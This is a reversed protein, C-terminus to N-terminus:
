QINIGIENHTKLIMMELTVLLQICSVFSTSYLSCCTGRLHLPISVSRPTLNFCELHLTEFNFTLHETSRRHQQNTLLNCRQILMLWQPSGTGEVTQTRRHSSTLIHYPSPKSVHQCGNFGSRHQIELTMAGCKLRRCKHM